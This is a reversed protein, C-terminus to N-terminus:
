HMWRADMTHPYAHTCAHTHVVGVVADVAGVVEMRVVDQCMSPGDSRESSQLLALAAQSQNTTLLLPTANWMTAMYAHMSEAAFACNMDTKRFAFHKTCCVQSLLVEHLRRM